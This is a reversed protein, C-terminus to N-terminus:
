RRVWSSMSAAGRFGSTLGHPTRFYARADTGLDAWTDPIMGRVEFFRKNLLLQAQTGLGSPDLALFPALACKDIPLARIAEERGRLYVERLVRDSLLRTLATTFDMTTYPLRWIAYNM